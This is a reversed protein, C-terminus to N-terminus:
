IAHELVEPEKMEDQLSAYVREFQRFRQVYVRHVEANPLYTATVHPEWEQKVSLADLGLKVAGFASSEVAGTVLVKCNFMDCLMQLWFHNQSFGGAAYIEHVSHQQMLIRGIAYVNYVVGEM